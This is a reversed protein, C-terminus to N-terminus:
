CARFPQGDVKSVFVEVNPLNALLYPKLGKAFIIESGYHTAEILNLGMDAALLAASYKIDATIFTDCGAALMDAFFGENAASGGIIGVKHVTANPDGCYTTTDVKLKDKVFAAFKALPLPQYPKGARGLYVSLQRESVMEKHRLELIDFLMDNVGGECADLNTHSAYVSIGNEILKLLRKGQPNQSTITKLPSWIIPHHTIIAQCGLKIAEDVVADTADLALLLRSVIVDEHGIILGVNDFGEAMHTPAMKEMIDMINKMKTPM